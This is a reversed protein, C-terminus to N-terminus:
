EQALVSRRQLPEPSSFLPIAKQIGSFQASNSSSYFNQLVPKPCRKQHTFELVWEAFNLRNLAKLSATRATIM